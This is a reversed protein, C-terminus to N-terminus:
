DPLRSDLIPKAESIDDGLDRAINKVAAALAKQQLNVGPVQQLLGDKEIFVHTSSNIMIESITEDLILHEIERLFPIILRFADRRKDESSQLGGTKTEVAKEDM